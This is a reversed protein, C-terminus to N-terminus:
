IVSSAVDKRQGMHQLPEAERLPFALTRLFGQKVGGVGEARVGPRSGEMGASAGSGAGDGVM